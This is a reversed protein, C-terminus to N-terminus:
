PTDRNMNHGSSPGVMNRLCTAFNAAEFFIITVRCHWLQIYRDAYVNRDAAFVYNGRKVRRIWGKGGKQFLTRIRALDTYIGAYNTYVM